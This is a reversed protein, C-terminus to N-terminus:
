WACHSFVAKHHCAEPINFLWESTLMSEFLSQANGEGTSFGSGFYCVLLPTAVPVGHPVELDLIVQRVAQLTGSNAHQDFSADLAVKLPDM